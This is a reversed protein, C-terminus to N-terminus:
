RFSVNCFNKLHFLYQGQGQRQGGAKYRERLRGSGRVDGGLLIGAHIGLSAGGELEGSGRRRVHLHVDAVLFVGERLILLPDPGTGRVRQHHTEM